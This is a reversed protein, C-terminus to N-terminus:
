YRDDKKPYIVSIIMYTKFRFHTGVFFYLDKKQPLDVLFRQKVKEIVENEDKYKGQKRYEECNRYLAMLEWDECMLKHPKKCEKSCKYVYSFSKQPIFIKVSSKNDILSIQKSKQKTKEYYPNDEVVFDIIQFPKVIGLSVERHDKSYLHEMTTIKKDLLLKIDKFTAESLGRISNLKIKRSEPRHDSPNDSQTEYEIWYKKKFGDKHWFIKWEIPYIRRFEEKDTIGGVCVLHEYKKSVIPYTKALVLLKEKM